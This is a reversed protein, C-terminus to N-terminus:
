HLDVALFESEILSESDAFNVNEVCISSNAVRLYICFSFSEWGFCFARPLDGLHTDILLDKWQVALM